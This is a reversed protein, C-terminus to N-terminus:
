WGQFARSYGTSEAPVGQCIECKRGPRLFAQEDSQRWDGLQVNWDTFIIM